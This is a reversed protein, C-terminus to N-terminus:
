SVSCACGVPCTPIMPEDRLSYGDWYRHTEAGIREVTSAPFDKFIKKLDRYVSVRKVGAVEEDEPTSGPHLFAWLGWLERTYLVEGPEEIVYHDLFRLITRPTTEDDEDNPAPVILLHLTHPNGQEALWDTTAFVVDLPAPAHAARYQTVVRHPKHFRVTATLAQAANGPYPRDFILLLIDERLDLAECDPRMLNLDKVPDRDSVRRYTNWMKGSRRLKMPVAILM